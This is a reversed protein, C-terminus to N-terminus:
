GRLAHGGDDQRSHGPQRIDTNGDKASQFIQALQPHMQQPRLRVDRASVPGAQEAAKAEQILIKAIDDQKLQRCHIRGKTNETVVFWIYGDEMPGMGFTAGKNLYVGGKSPRLEMKDPQKIRRIQFDHDGVKIKGGEKIPGMGLRIEQQMQRRHKAALEESSLPKGTRVREMVEDIKAKMEPTVELEGDARPSAMKSAIVADVSATAAAVIAPDVSKGTNERAIVETKGLEVTEQM